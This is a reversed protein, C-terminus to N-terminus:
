PEGLEEVIMRVQKPWYKHTKANVLHHLRPNIKLEERLNKLASEKSLHPFYLMALESKGYTQIIFEENQM